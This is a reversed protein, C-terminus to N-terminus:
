WSAGVPQLRGLDVRSAECPACGRRTRSGTWSSWRACRRPPCRRRTWSTRWRRDADHRRARAFPGPALLASEVAAARPGPKIGVPRRFPLLEGTAPLYCAHEDGLLAHGRAALALALTSKGAGKPGVLM